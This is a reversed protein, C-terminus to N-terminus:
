RKNVKKDNYIMYSLATCAVAFLLGFFIDDNLGYVSTGVFFTLAFVISFVFIKM